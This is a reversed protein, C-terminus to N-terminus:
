IYVQVYQIRFCINWPVMVFADAYLCCSSLVYLDIGIHDLPLVASGTSVIWAKEQYTTPGVLLEGGRGDEGGEM